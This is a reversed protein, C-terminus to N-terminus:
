ADTLHYPYTNIHMGLSHFSADWVIPKTHIASHTSNWIICKNETAKYCIVVIKTVEFISM